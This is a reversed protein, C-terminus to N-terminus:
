IYQEERITTDDSQVEIAKRIIFDTVNSRIKVRKNLIILAIKKANISDGQNSYINM